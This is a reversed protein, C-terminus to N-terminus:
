GLRENPDGFAAMDYKLDLNQIDADTRLHKLLSYREILPKFKERGYRSLGNFFLLKLESSSLQARVLRAYTRRENGGFEDVYRMINYLTRFYHGVSSENDTYWREYKEIPDMSPPRTPHTGSVQGVSFGRLTALLMGFAARGSSGGNDSRVTSIVQNHLELMGFFTNEFRQRRLSENQQQMEERQDKMEERQLEMEKVQLAMIEQTQDLERRQQKLEYKQSRFLM